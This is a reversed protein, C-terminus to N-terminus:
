SVSWCDKAIRMMNHWFISAREEKQFGIKELAIDLSPIDEPQLYRIGGIGDPYYKKPWWHEPIIGEPMDTIGAQALMTDLGM